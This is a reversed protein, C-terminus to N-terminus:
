KFINPLEENTLKELDTSFLRINSNFANPLDENVLEFLNNTINYLGLDELYSNNKYVRCSVGCAIPLVSELTGIRDVFYSVLGTNDSTKIVISGHKEMQVTNNKDGTLYNLALLLSNPTCDSSNYVTRAKIVRRYLEDDLIKASANNFNARSKWYGGIGSDIKSGFTDSRYADEFGFNRESEFDILVRSQGVLNGIFDLHWKEAVDINLINQSLWLFDEQQTSYAQFIAQLLSHLNDSERFLSPELQYYEALYDLSIPTTM